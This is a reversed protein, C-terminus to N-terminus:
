KGKSDSNDKTEAKKFPNSDFHFAVSVFLDYAWIKDHLQDFDLNDKIVQGDTYQGKLQYKQTGALGVNLSLNDGIVISPCILVTPSSLDLMFGGTLGFKIWSDPNNFFLYSYMITPTINKLVNKTTANSKSIIYKKGSTDSKAYYTSFNTLVDFVYTFGFYVKWHDVTETKYVYTWTATDKGFRKITLTVQEGKGVNIASSLTYIDSEALHIYRQAESLLSCPFQSKEIQKKLEVIKDGIKKEDTEKELTDIAKKLDKSCGRNLDAAFSIPATPLALTPIHEKKVEIVYPKAESSIVRNKLVVSEIKQPEITQTFTGNKNKALDITLTQAFCPMASAICIISTFPKM